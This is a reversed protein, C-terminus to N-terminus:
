ETLVQEYSFIINAYIGCRSIIIFFCFLNYKQIVQGVKMGEFSKQMSLKMELNLDLTPTLKAIFQWVILIVSYSSYLLRM